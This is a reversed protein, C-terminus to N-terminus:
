WSPYWLEPHPQHDYNWMAASNTPNYLVSPDMESVHGDCFSANYNKGHRVATYAYLKNHDRVNPWNEWGCALECWGGPDYNVEENLYRSEGIALMDSPKVIQSESVVPMAGPSKIPNFYGPGLGLWKTPHYNIGRAVDVVGVTGSVGAGNYAYSGFPARNGVVGAIAGKYGPCHYERSTWKIPYYPQLKAWWYRTNATGVAEDLSPDRPNVYYVYKNEHDHVYMQLALNMQRLHNKCVTSHAHAKAASIAPFLLAALIGIIAIVVLLEILTFANLRPNSDKSFGFQNQSRRM